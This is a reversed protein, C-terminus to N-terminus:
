KGTEKHNKKNFILLSTVALASILTLIIFSSNIPVPESISAGGREGDNVPQMERLKETLASITMLSTTKANSAIPEVPLVFEEDGTAVFYYKGSANVLEKPLTLDNSRALGVLNNRATGFAEANGGYHVIRYAGDEYGVTLFVKSTGNADLTFEWTDIINTDIIEDISQGTASKLQSGGVFMVHFGEGLTLNEIETADEFGWREPNSSMKTQILGVGSEAVALVEHPVDSGSTAYASTGLSLVMFVAVFLAFYKKM